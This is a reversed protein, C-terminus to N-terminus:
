TEVNQFTEKASFLLFHECLKYLSTDSYPHGGIQSSNPNLQKTTILNAVFKSTQNLGSWQFRLDAICQHKGKCLFLTHESQLLTWVPRKGRRHAVKFLYNLLYYLGKLLYYYGKLLYYYGKPLYYYGKPLYYYGKLLMIFLRQRRRQQEGKSM